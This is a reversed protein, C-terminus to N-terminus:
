SGSAGICSLGIGLKTAQRIAGVFGEDVAFDVDVEGSIGEKEEGVEAEVRRLRCGRKV